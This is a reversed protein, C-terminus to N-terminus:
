HVAQTDDTAKAGDSTLSATAETHPVVLVHDLAFRAQKPECDIALPLRADRLLADSVDWRQERYSGDLRLTGIAAGRLAVECPLGEPADVRKARIVLQAGTWSRRAEPLPLDLQARQTKSTCHTRERYDWDHDVPGAACDRFGVLGKAQPGIDLGGVLGKEPAGLRVLSEGTNELGPELDLLKVLAALARVDGLLGLGRVIEDRINTRSEWELASVLAPYARADGIQGLAVAILYRLRFEPLLSLLPEVAAPDRLRGLWRVAEEREYQTPAVWLAEILAPVAARDRLRGLSVSARARLYPDEVHMLKLLLARARADHMRGLAIAAEAAV